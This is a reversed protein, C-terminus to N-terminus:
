RNKNKENSRQINNAYLYLKSVLEKGKKTLSVLDIHHFVDVEILGLKLLPKYDEFFSSKSTHIEFLDRINKATIPNRKKKM